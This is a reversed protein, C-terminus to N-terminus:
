FVGPAESMANELRLAVRTTKHSKGRESLKQTAFLVVAWGAGKRASVPGTHLRLIADAHGHKSKPGVQPTYAEQDYKQWGLACGTILM